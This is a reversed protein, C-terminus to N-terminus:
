IFNVAINRAVSDKYCGVHTPEFEVASGPFLRSIIWIRSCPRIVFM